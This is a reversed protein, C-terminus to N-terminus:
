SPRNVRLESHDSFVSRRSTGTEFDDEFAAHFLGSSKKCLSARPTECRAVWRKFQCPRSVM